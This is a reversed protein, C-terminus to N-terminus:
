ATAHHWIIHPIKNDFIILILCSSRLKYGIIHTPTKKQFVTYLLHCKAEKLTHLSKFAFQYWSIEKHSKTQPRGYAANITITDLVMLNNTLSLRLSIKSAKHLRQTCINSRFLKDTWRGWWWCATMVASQTLLDRWPQINWHVIHVDEGHSIVWSESTGDVNAVGRM